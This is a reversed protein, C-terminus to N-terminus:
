YFFYLNQLSFSLDLFTKFAFLCGLGFYFCNLGVSSLGFYNLLLIEFETEWHCTPSWGGPEQHGTPCLMHWKNSTASGWLMHQLLCGGAAWPPGWLVAFPHGLSTMAKLSAWM